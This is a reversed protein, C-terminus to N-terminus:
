IIRQHHNIVQQIHLQHSPMELWVEQEKDQDCVQEEEGREGDAVAADHRRRRVDYVGGQDKPALM